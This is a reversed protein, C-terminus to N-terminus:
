GIRAADHEKQLCSLLASIRGSPYIENYEELIADFEESSDHQIVDTNAIARCLETVKAEEGDIEGRDVPDGLLAFYTLVTNPAEIFRQYLLESSSSTGAGDTHLYYACLKALSYRSFDQTEAHSLMDQTIGCDEPALSVADWETKEFEASLAPASERSPALPNANSACASLFVFLVAAAIALTCKKM